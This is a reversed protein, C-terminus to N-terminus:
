GEPPLSGAKIVVPQGLELGPKRGALFLTWDAVDSPLLAFQDEQTGSPSTAVGTVLSDVRVGAPQNELRTIDALAQLGRLSVGFAGENAFATLASENSIFIIQGSRRARMGALVARTLLFPARLNAALIRDWTDLRHEHIAGGGWVASVLVLLDLPGFAQECQRLIWEVQDERTIDGPIGVAQGGASQIREATANLVEAQQGTIAVKAGAAGLARAIAQSVETSGSTVLATKDRLSIM